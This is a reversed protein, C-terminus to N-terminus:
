TSRVLRSGDSRTLVATFAGSTMSFIGSIRNGRADSAAVAAAPGAEAFSRPALSTTFWGDLLGFSGAACAGARVTAGAFGGTPDLGVCEGLDPDRYVREFALAYFGSASASAGPTAAIDFRLPVPGVWSEDTACTATILSSPTRRQIIGSAGCGPISWAVDDSAGVGAPDTVTVSVSAPSGREAVGGRASVSFATKAVATYVLPPASCACSAPDVSITISGSGEGTVRCTFRAHGLGDAIASGTCLGTVNVRAASVFNGGRTVRVLLPVDSATALESPVALLQALSGTPSPLPSPAPLRPIALNRDAVGRLTTLAPDGPTVSWCSLGVDTRGAGNATLTVQGPDKFDWVVYGAARREADMMADLMTGFRNARDAIPWGGCGPVGPVAARLGAEGIIFPKARAIVAAHLNSAITAVDPAPASFQLRVNASVTQLVDGPDPGLLTGGASTAPISAQLSWSGETSRRQTRSLTAGQATMGDLGSEFGFRRDVASAVTAGTRVLADDVYAVWAPSTPAILKLAWRDFRTGDTPLDLRVNTWTDITLAVDRTLHDGASNWADVRATVSSALPAGPLPDAFDYVHAEALDTCGGPCDLLRGYVPPRTGVASGGKSGLQILHNTDGAEGRIASTMDRAFDVLATEDSGAGAVAPDPENMLQWLAIAPSSRYRRTVAVAYARYSIGWAPEPTKYGPTCGFSCHYWANPKPVSGCIPYQNGLVPILRVNHKQAYYILKDTSSWDRGGATFQAMFGFTRAVSAHAERELTAFTSDLYSDLDPHQYYCGGIDDALARLPDFDWVNAGVAVWPQSGIRLEQGVASVFPAGAARGISPVLVAGLTLAALLPGVASRRGLRYPRTRVGISM